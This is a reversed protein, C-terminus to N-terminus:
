FTRGINAFDVCLERNESAPFSATWARVSQLVARYDRQSGLYDLVQRPNNANPIFVRLQNEYAEFFRKKQRENLMQPCIEAMVQVLALEYKTVRINALESVNIASSRTTIKISHQTTTQAYASLAVNAFLALMLTIKKARVVLSTRGVIFKAPMAPLKPTNPIMTDLNM